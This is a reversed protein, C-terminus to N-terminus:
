FLSKRPRHAIIKHEQIMSQHSKKMQANEAKLREVALNSLKLKEQMNEIEKKPM